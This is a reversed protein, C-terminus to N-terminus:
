CAQVGILLVDILLTCLQISINKEETFYSEM